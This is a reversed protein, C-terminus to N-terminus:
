KKTEDKIEQENLSYSVTTYDFFEIEKDPFIEKARNYTTNYKNQSTSICIKSINSNKIQKFIHEDNKALNSGFIMLTGSLSVLKNFANKLYINGNICKEKNESTNTFVCVIDKEYSNIIEELKNYLAKDQEQTIKRIKNKDKYIHFAGHLFFINQSISDKYDKFLFGDDINDLKRKSKEEEWIYDCVKRIDKPKWKKTKFHNKIIMSFYEKTMDKLYSESINENIITRIKGKKRAEQIESYINNQKENLDEEKFLSTNQFAVANNNNSKKFKMLLLYLFPDYNLSFYNNFNKLLLYIDENKDQYINKVEDKVINYCAKMFDLKIKSEIFNCLFGFEESNQKIANKMKEILAEINYDIIKMMQDLSMYAIYDKKMQEFINKYSTNIGLSNNFGNGLLLHCEERTRELDNLIDQYNKLPPIIIRKNKDM